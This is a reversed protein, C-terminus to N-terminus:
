QILVTTQEQPWPQMTKLALIGKPMPAPSEWVTTLECRM